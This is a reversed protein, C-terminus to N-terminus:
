DGDGIVQRPLKTPASRSPRNRGVPGLSVQGWRTWGLLETIKGAADLGGLRTPVM